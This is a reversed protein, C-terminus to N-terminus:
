ATQAQLAAKVIKPLAPVKLIRVGCANYVANLIAPHPATLPARREPQARSEQGAVGQGVDPFGAHLHRM